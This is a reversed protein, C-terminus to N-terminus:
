KEAGKDEPIKDFLDGTWHNTSVINGAVMIISRKFGAYEDKFHYGM